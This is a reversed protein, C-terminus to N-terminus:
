SSCPPSCTVCRSLHPSPHPAAGRRLPVLRRPLRRDGRSVQLQQALGAVVLTLGFVALLMTEDSGITLSRSLHHGFTLGGWLIVVVVLAIAVTRVTDAPARGIVLAAAVPPYVAM